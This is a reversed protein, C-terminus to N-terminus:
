SAYVGGFLHLVLAGDGLQFTGLFPWVVAMPLLPNGTSCVEFRQAKLPRSDDVRFWMQATGHQVQVSLFTAGEPLDLTFTQELPVAHKHITIM